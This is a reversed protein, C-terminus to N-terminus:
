TDKGSKRKKLIGKPTMRVVLRDPLRLDIESVERKFVGHKAEVEALKAWAKAAEVNPLNITVGNRMRLNWRRDALRMAAEVYPYLTPQQALMSLLENAHERSGKGVVLPLRAYRSLGRSTILAGDRGILTLKGQKQWLALPEREILTITIVDPLQRVVRAERVWGLRLLRQRAEDADFSLINDGRKVGVARALQKLSTAKRGSVYVERVRLGGADTAWDLGADYAAVIKRDVGAALAWLVAGTFVAVAAVGLLGGFLRKRMSATLRRRLRWRRAGPRTRKAGRENRSKNEGKLGLTM